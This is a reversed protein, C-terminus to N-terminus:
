NKRTKKNYSAHIGVIYFNNKLFYYIPSGSQGSSTPMLYQIFGEENLECKGVSKWM